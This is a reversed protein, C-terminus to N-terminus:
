IYNMEVRSFYLILTSSFPVRGKMVEYVMNRCFCKGMSSGAMPCQAIGSQLQVQLPCLLFRLVHYIAGSNGKPTSPLRQVPQVFIQQADKNRMRRQGAGVVEAVAFLAGRQSAMM